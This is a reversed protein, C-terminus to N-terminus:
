SAEYSSDVLKSVPKRDDHIEGQLFLIDADLDGYEDLFGRMRSIIAVEDSNKTVTKAM